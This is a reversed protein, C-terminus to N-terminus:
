EVIELRMLIWGIESVRQEHKQSQEQCLAMSEAKVGYFTYLHYQAIEPNKLVWKQCHGLAQWVLDSETVEDGELSTAYCESLWYTGADLGLIGCTSYLTKSAKEPQAFGVNQYFLSLAFILIFSKLLAM